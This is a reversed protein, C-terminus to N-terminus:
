IKENLYNNISERNNNKNVIVYVSSIIILLVQYEPGVNSYCGYKLLMQKALSNFQKNSKLIDSLGIINFKQTNKTIPEILGLATYLSDMLFSDISTTEIIVQMESIYSQLEEVSANKKIKFHQLELKFLEKYKSISNYLERRTRGIIQSNFEDDEELKEKEKEIKEENKINIKEQELIQKQAKIERNRIKDAQKENDLKIKDEKKKDLELQIKSIYKDNQLNNLEEM